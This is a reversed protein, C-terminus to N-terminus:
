PRVMACGGAAGGSGGVRAGGRAGGVAAAGGIAGAGGGGRWVGRACCGIPPRSKNEGRGGGRKISVGGEPLALGIVGREPSLRCLLAGIM